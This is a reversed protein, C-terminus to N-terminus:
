VRAPVADLHKKQQQMWGESGNKVCDDVDPHLYHRHLHYRTHCQQQQQQQQQTLILPCRRHRGCASASRTCALHQEVARDAAAIEDRPKQTFVFKCAINIGQSLQQRSSGAGM